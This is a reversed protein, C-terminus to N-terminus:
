VSGQRHQRAERVRVPEPRFKRDALFSERIYAYAGILAIFSVAGGVILLDLDTM